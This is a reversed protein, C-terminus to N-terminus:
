FCSWLRNGLEVILSPRLYSMFVLALVGAALLRLAWRQPARM